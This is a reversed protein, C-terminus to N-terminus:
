SLLPLNSSTLPLLDVEVELHNLLPLPVVQLLLIGFKVLMVDVIQHNNILPISAFPVLDQVTLSVLRVVM